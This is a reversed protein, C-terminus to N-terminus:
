GNGIRESVGRLARDVGRNVGWVQQLGVFAMGVIKPPSDPPVRRNSMRFRRQDWSSRAASSMEGPIRGATTPEVSTDPTTLLLTAPSSPRGVPVGTTPPPASLAAPATPLPTIPTPRTCDLIPVDPVKSEGISRGLTSRCMRSCVKQWQTGSVHYRIPTIREAPFESLHNCRTNSGEFVSLAYSVNVDSASRTSGPLAPRNKWGYRVPSRVGCLSEAARPTNKPRWKPWLRAWRTRETISPTHKAM